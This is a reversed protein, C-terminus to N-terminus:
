RRQTKHPAIRDSYIDIWEDWNSDWGKYHVQIENDRVGIVTASLWTKATDLCDIKDGIKYKPTEPEWGYYFLSIKAILEDKKIRPYVVIHIRKAIKKLQPVTLRGLKNNEVIKKVDRDDSLSYKKKKKPSKKKKKPSKKFEVQRAHGIMKMADMPNHEFFSPPLKMKKLRDLVAQQSKKFNPHDRKQQTLQTLIDGNIIMKNYFYACMGVNNPLPLCVSKGLTGWYNTDLELYIYPIPFVTNNELAGADIKLQVYVGLLGAVLMHNCYDATRFAKDLSSGNVTYHLLRDRKAPPLEHIHESFKAMRNYLPTLYKKDDFEVHAGAQISGSILIVDFFEDMIDDYEGIAVAAQVELEDEYKKIIENQIEPDMGPHYIIALKENDFTWIKKEQDHYSENKFGDNRIYTGLQDIHYCHGEWSVFLKNPTITKVGDGYIDEKNICNYIDFLEDQLLEYIYYHQHNKLGEKHHNIIIYIALRIVQDYDIDFKSAIKGICLYIDDNNNNNDWENIEWGSDWDM